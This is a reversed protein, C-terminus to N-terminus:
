CAYRPASGGPNKCVTTRAEYRRQVYGIDGPTGSSAVAQVQYSVLKLGGEDVEGAAPHRSCSVQLAMDGLPQPLPLTIDAFCPPLTTAGLNQAGDPDSVQWLGWEAGSKAAVLARAGQLQLSQAHTSQLLVRLGAGLLLSVAVIGFVLAPLALGRSRGRGTSSWQQKM